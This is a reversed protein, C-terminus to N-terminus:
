ALTHAHARTNHTRLYIRMFRSSNMSRHILNYWGSVKRPYLERVQKDTIKNIRTQEKQTREYPRYIRHFICTSREVHVRRCNRTRMPTFTSRRFPSDTVRLCQRTFIGMFVPRNVKQTRKRTHMRMHMHTFVQTRAHYNM